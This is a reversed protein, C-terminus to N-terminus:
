NNLDELEANQVRWDSISFQTRNREDSRRWYAAGGTRIFSVFGGTRTKIRQECGRTNAEYGGEEAAIFRKLGIKTIRILGRKEWRSLTGVSIGLSNAFEAISEARRESAHTQL